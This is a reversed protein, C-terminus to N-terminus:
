ELKNQAAHKYKLSTFQMKIDRVKPLFMIELSNQTSTIQQLLKLRTAFLIWQSM